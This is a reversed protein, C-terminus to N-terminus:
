QSNGKVKWEGGIKALLLGGGQSKTGNGTPSTIKLQVIAEGSPLIKSNVVEVTTKKMALFANENKRHDSGVLVVFLEKSNLKKLTKADKKVNMKALFQAEQGEAKAKDLESLFSRRLEKLTEPHMYNVATSIDGLFFATMYNKAVDEMGAQGSKGDAAKATSINFLFLSVFFLLAVSFVKIRM